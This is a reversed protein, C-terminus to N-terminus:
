VSDIGTASIGLRGTKGGDRCTRRARELGPEWREGELNVWWRERRGCMLIWFDARGISGEGCRGGRKQTKLEAGNEM